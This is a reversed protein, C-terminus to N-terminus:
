YFRPKSNEAPEEANESHNYISKDDEEDATLTLKAGFGVCKDNRLRLSIKTNPHDSNRGAKETVKCGFANWAKFGKFNEVKIQM